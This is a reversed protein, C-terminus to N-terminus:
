QVREFEYRQGDYSFRGKDVAEIELPATSAAKECYAKTESEMGLLFREYSDSM